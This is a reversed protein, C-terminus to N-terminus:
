GRATLPSRRRRGGGASKPGPPVEDHLHNAAAHLGSGVNGGRSLAPWPSPITQGSVPYPLTSTLAAEPVPTQLHPPADGVFLPIELGKGCGRHRRTLSCRRRGALASERAEDWRRSRSTGRTTARRARTLLRDAQVLAHAGIGSDAVVHQRPQIGAVHGRTSVARPWFSARTGPFGSCGLPAWPM